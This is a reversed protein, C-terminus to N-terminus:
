VPSVPSVPWRKPAAKALQLVLDVVLERGFAEGVRGPRRGIALFLEVPQDHQHVVGSRGGRQGTKVEKAKEVKVVERLKVEERTWVSSNGCVRELRINRGEDCGGLRGLLGRRHVRRGRWGM